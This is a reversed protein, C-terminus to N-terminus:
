TVAACVAAWLGHPSLSADMVEQKHANGDNDKQVQAHTAIM